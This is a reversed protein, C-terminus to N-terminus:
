TLDISLERASVLPLSKFHPCLKFPERSIALLAYSGLSKQAHSSIQSVVSPAAGRGISSQGTTAHKVPHAPTHQLHLQLHAVVLDAELVALRLSPSASRFSYISSSFSHTCITDISVGEEDCRELEQRSASRGECWGHAWCRGCGRGVLVATSTHSPLVQGDELMKLLEKCGDFAQAACVPQVLPAGRCLIRLFCPLFRSPHRELAGNEDLVKFYSVRRVNGCM